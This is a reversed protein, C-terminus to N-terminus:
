WRAGVGLPSFAAVMESAEVHHHTAQPPLTGQGLGLVDNIVDFRDEERGRSGVLDEDQRREASHARKWCIERSKAQPGTFLSLGDFKGCLRAFVIDLSVALPDARLTDLGSYLWMFLPLLLLLSKSFARWRPLAVPAIDRGGSRNSFSYRDGLVSTFPSNLAVKPLGVGM